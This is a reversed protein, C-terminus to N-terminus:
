HNKGKDSNKKKKVITKKKGGQKRKMEMVNKTGQGNARPARLRSRGEANSELVCPPSLLSHQPHSGAAGRGRSCGSTAPPTCGLHSVLLGTAHSPCFPLFM